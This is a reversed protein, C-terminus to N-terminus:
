VEIHMIKRGLLMGCAIMLLAATMVLNGIPTHILPDLFGPSSSKLFFVLVFPMFCLVKYELKKGAILTAIEQQIEIKESITASTIRMVEVLNAGSRKAIMIVDAFSKIEEIDSRRALDLFCKEVPENMLIRQRIINLETMIDSNEEPYMGRLSDYADSVATELSKGASLAVSLFYLADKFQLRLIDKRKRLLEKRRMPIYLIGAFSLLASIIINEYFVLGIAFCIGMVAILALVLEQPKMKYKSYDPIHKRNM